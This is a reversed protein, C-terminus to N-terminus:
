SVIGGGPVRKLLETGYDRPCRAEDAPQSLHMTLTFGYPESRFRVSVDGSENIVATTFGETKIHTPYGNCSKQFELSFRGILINKNGIRDRILTSVDLSVIEISHRDLVERWFEITKGDEPSSLVCSALFLQLVYDDTHTGTEPIVPKEDGPPISTVRSYVSGAEPYVDRDPSRPASMRLRRRAHRLTNRPIREMELNSKFM